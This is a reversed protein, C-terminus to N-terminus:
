EHNVEGEVVRVEEDSLGYLEYVPKDIAADTAAIERQMHTEREARTSVGCKEHTIDIRTDYFNQRNDVDWGLAEFFPDLFERRLQTENYGPAHYAERHMAFRAVLQTITTVSNTM